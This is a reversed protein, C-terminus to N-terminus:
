KARAPVADPEFNDLFAQCAIPASKDVEGQGSFVEGTVAGPRTPLPPM